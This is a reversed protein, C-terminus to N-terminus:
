ARWMFLSPSPIKHKQRKGSYRKIIMRNILILNFWYGEISYVIYMSLMSIRRMRMSNYIFCVTWQECFPIPLLWPYLTHASYSFTINFFSFFFSSLGIVGDFMPLLLICLLSLPSCALGGDRAARVFFPLIQMFVKVALKKHRRPLFVPNCNKENAYKRFPSLLFARM